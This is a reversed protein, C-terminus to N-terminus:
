RRGAFFFLALLVGGIALGGNMLSGGCTPNFTSNFFSTCDTGPNAASYDTFFQQLAAANQAANDSASQQLLWVPNGNADNGAFVAGATGAPVVSISPPISAPPAVTPSIVATTKQSIDSPLCMWQFPSLLSSSDACFQASGPVSVMFADWATGGMGRRTYSM